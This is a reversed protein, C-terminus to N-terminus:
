FLYYIVNQHKDCVYSNKHKGESYLNEVVACSFFITNDNALHISHIM